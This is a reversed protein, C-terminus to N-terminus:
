LAYCPNDRLFFAASALSLSLASSCCQRHTPGDCDWRIRRVARACRGAWVAFCVCGGSEAATFFQNATRMLWWAMCHYAYVQALLPILRHRQLQYEIIPHEGSATVRM